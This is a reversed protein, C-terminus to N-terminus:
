VIFPFDIDYHAKKYLNELSVDAKCGGSGLPKASNFNNSSTLFLCTAKNEGMHMKIM